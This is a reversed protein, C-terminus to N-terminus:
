ECIYRKKMMICYTNKYNSVFIYKAVLDDILDFSIWEKLEEDEDDEKDLVIFSSIPYFNDTDTIDKRNILAVENERDVYIGDDPVIWNGFRLYDSVLDM